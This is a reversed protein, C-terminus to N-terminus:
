VASRFEFPKAVGIIIAELAVPHGAPRSALGDLRAAIYAGFAEARPGVAVEGAGKIGVQVHEALAGNIFGVLIWACRVVSIGAIRVAHVEVAPKLRLVVVDVELAVAGVVPVAVLWMHM